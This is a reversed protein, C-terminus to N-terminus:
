AHLRDKRRVAGIEAGHWSRKRVIAVAEKVGIV